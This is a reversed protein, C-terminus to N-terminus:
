SGLMPPMGQKSRNIMLAAVGRVSKATSNSRVRAYGYHAGFGDQGDTKETRLDALTKSDGIDTTQVYDAVRENVESLMARLTGEDCGVLIFGFEDGAIRFPVIQASHRSLVDLFIHCIKRIHPDALAHVDKFHKNLGSMNIIDLEVYWVLGGL